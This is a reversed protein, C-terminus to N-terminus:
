KSLDTVDFAAARLLRNYVALDIGKEGPCHVIMRSAGMGDADRLAGFLLRAHAAPDDAAGFSVSPVAVREGEFCLAVDGERANDTIWKEFDERSAKILLVKAKPSYHKYKMGPSLAAQGKELGKTVASDIIIEGITDEIEEATVFGPRLLRPTDGVLSLVTSEVGCDCEGGDIILPIRGEFDQMVHAATTPSPSGSLNASPAAVPIRSRSIIERIVPHSPMRVAVTDLGGSTEDPIADTKKFIMTLPGPWYKEALALAKEPIESAADRLMDMDSIHVILPNDQPRGKAEFIKRVASVCRADAALGYVTETPLGAIEGSSLLRIAENIGEERSTPVSADFLATKM